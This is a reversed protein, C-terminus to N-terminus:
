PMRATGAKAIMGVGTAAALRITCDGRRLTSARGSCHHRPFIMFLARNYEACIQYRLNPLTRRINGAPLGGRRRHLRRSLGMPTRYTWVRGIGGRGGIGGTGGTGGTGDAGRFSSAVFMLAFFGHRDKINKAAASAEAVARAAAPSPAPLSPAPPRVTSLYPSQDTIQAPGM